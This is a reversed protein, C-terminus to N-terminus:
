GHNTQKPTAEASEVRMSKLRELAVIAAVSVLWSIGFAAANARATGGFIILANFALHLLAVLSFGAIWLARKVKPTAFHAYGGFVGLVAAAAVHLTTAGVARTSGTMVAAAIQGGHFYVENFVYFFNEAASFGLAAAILYVAADIPEDLERKSLGGAYAAVLKALEEVVVWVTLTVLAAVPAWHTAEHVDAGGLFLRSAILQVVMTGPIAAAGLFFTIVVARRPEPHDVDERLWFALWVLAPILSGLFAPGISGLLEDLRLTSAVTSLGAM